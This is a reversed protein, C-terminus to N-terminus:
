QLDLQYFRSDRCWQWIEYLLNKAAITHVVMLPCDAAALEDTCTNLQTLVTDLVLAVFHVTILRTEIDMEPAGRMVYLVYLTEAEREYLPLCSGVTRTKQEAPM